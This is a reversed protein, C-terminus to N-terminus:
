LEDGGLAGDGGGVDGDGVGQARSLVSGAGTRSSPAALEPEQWGGRGLLQPGSAPGHGPSAGTPNGHGTAAQKRRRARCQTASGPQQRPEAGLGTELLLPSPSGM